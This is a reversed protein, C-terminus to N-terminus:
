RSSPHPSTRSRRIAWTPSISGITTTPARRRRRGASLARGRDARRHRVVDPPEQERLDAPGAIAAHRRRPLLPRSGVARKPCRAGKRRSRIARTSSARPTKPGRFAPSDCGNAGRRRSGTGDDLSRVRITQWDAGGAAVTYALLRADPSPSFSALSTTADPWLINPDILQTPPGDLGERMYLPSQQQLGTNMRYFLRGGEILPLNTKRFNWLRAIRQQFYTRIPQARLYGETLQNQEAIWAAVEPANSIRSGGIPIPLKRGTTTM